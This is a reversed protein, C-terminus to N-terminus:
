YKCGSDGWSSKFNVGKWIRLVELLCSSKLTESQTGSPGLCLITVSVCFPIWNEQYLKIRWTTNVVSLLWCTCRLCLVMRVPSHADCSRPLAKPLLAQGGSFIQNIFLYAALFYILCSSLSLACSFPPPTHLPSKTCVFLSVLFVPGQPLTLVSQRINSEGCAWNGFGLWFSLGQGASADQAACEAGPCKRCCSLAHIRFGIGEIEVGWQLVFNSVPSIKFRGKM